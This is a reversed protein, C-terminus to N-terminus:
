EVRSEAYCAVVDGEQWENFGDVTFGCEYGAHVEKVPKRDRQLSSVKGEGVKKNGRLCEVKNGRALVGDRMYCGAIVGIGKIDFVKLVNAEGVKNWVYVAEKKSQLLKTLYDILEYIIGYLQIDVGVDKALAQANKEIKVHLGVIIADTSEALEIDSETIDGIGSNIITIPCKIDKNAKVVKDISGMVAEKSGRTDTKVILNIAKKKAAAAQAQAAISVLPAAVPPTASSQEVPKQLRVKGYEQQTVVVLEDGLGAVSDFGVVQVPISPGAHTIKKGHSDILIRVKGTCNGAVFYDGVRLTGQRSITTAVPGLGKEVHSELIFGRAQGETPAKLDMMQSQLVIMELLHDVGQGTKASIPAVITQGGWDEPMLEHQALQRKITEIASPSSIKDIKNGAVVIPVGAEKAHNIAEITQPMIGDDAAVVLIAIDTIKSGQQRMYSFAEHGPTDLFVIKGHTSDVEWARVHQTIGGKESAAVNMKRIFDLLTTKGHDVHGMVVVIPARTSGDAPTARVASRAEQEAEPAQFTVPINFFEGLSRILDISIVANRNCVMGKKLLAMIVDSSQKGFLDAVEFVPLSLAEVTVKTVPAKPTERTFVPRPRRRRRRRPGQPQPAFASIGTLNSANLLRKIREQERAEVDDDHEDYIPAKPATVVPTHERAIRSDNKTPFQAMTTTPKPTPPIPPQQQPKSERPQQRAEEKVPQPHSAPVPSAVPAKAKPAAAPAPTPSLKKELFARAEPTLVAMHTSVAFGGAQLAALVDKSTMGREKAFEYVRM